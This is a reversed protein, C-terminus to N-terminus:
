VRHLVVDLVFRSGLFAVALLIFAILAWNIALTGRLGKIQRGIILGGFLLWSILSFATKHALNQAFFQDIGFIGIAIGVTLIVWGVTILYFMLSELRQLPPLSDLWAKQSHQRLSNDAFWLIVATIAAICLVGYAVLSAAIHASLAHSSTDLPASHNFFFSCILAIISVINLPVFLSPIDRATTLAALVVILSTLSFMEVFSGSLSGRELILLVVYALHLSASIGAFAIGTRSGLKQTRQLIIQGTSTIYALIAGLLSLHTILYANMVLNQCM